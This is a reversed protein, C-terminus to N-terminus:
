PIAGVGFAVLLWDVIPKGAVATGLIGVGAMSWDRIDTVMGKNRVELKQVEAIKAVSEDLRTMVEILETKREVETAVPLQIGEESPKTSLAFDNSQSYVADRLYSLESQAKGRHFEKEFDYWNLHSKRQNSIAIAILFVSGIFLLIGTLVEM